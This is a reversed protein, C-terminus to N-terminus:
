NQIMLILLRRSLSSALPSRFTTVFNVPKPPSPLTSGHRTKLLKLKREIRKRYREIGIDNDNFDAFVMVEKMTKKPCLYKILAAKDCIRDTTQEDM